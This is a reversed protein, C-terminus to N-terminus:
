PLYYERKMNLWHVILLSFALLALPVVAEKIRFLPSNTLLIKQVGAGSGNIMRPARGGPSNGLAFGLRFLKPEANVMKILRQIADTGADPEQVYIGITLQHKDAVKRLSKLNADDELDAGNLMLTKPFSGSEVKKKLDRVAHCFLIKEPGHVAAIQRYYFSGIYCVDIGFTQKLAHIFLNIDNATSWPSKIDLCLSTKKTITHKSLTFQYLAERYTKIWSSVSPASKLFYSRTCPFKGCLTATISGHEIVAKQLSHPKKPDLWLDWELPIPGFKIQALAAVVPSNEMVLTIKKASIGNLIRKQENLIRDCEKFRRPDLAELVGALFSDALLETAVGFGGGHAYPHLDKRLMVSRELPHTHRDITM